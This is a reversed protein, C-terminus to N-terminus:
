CSQMFKKRQIIRPQAKQLVEVGKEAITNGERIAKAVNNISSQIMEVQKDRSDM